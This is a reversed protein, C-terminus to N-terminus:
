SAAAEAVYVVEQSGFVVGQSGFMTIAYGSDDVGGSTFWVGSRSGFFASPCLTILPYMDVRLVNHLFWAPQSSMLGLSRSKLSSTLSSSSIIITLFFLSFSVGASSSKLLGNLAAEFHGNVLLIM